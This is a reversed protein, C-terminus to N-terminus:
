KIVHDRTSFGRWFCGLSSLIFDRRSSDPTYALTEKSHNCLLVSCTEGVLTKQELILTPFPHSQATCM